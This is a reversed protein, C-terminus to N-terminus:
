RMRASPCCGVMGTSPLGSSSMKRSRVAAEHGRVLCRNRREEVPSRVVVRETEKDVISTPRPAFDNFRGVPQSQGHDQGTHPVEAVLNTSFQLYRGHEQPSVGCDLEDLFGSKKLFRGNRGVLAGTSGAEKGMEAKEGGRAGALTSYPIRFTAFRCGIVWFAAAPRNM